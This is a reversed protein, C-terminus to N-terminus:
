KYQDLIKQKKEATTKIKNWNSGFSAVMEAFEKKKKM